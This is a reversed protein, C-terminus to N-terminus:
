WGIAFRGSELVLIKDGKSLVNTLSAEWAGHGNSIYIYGKSKTRFVKAVDALLGDTLALLPGSYIDVAPRHMARLVEDPGTTPGPIALIERGARVTMSVTGSYVCVAPMNARRSDPEFSTSHPWEARTLQPCDGCSGATSCPSRCPTWTSITSCGPTSASAASP